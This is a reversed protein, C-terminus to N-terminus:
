DILKKQIEDFSYLKGNQDDIGPCYEKLDEWAKKTEVNCRWWPFKECQSPRFDYIECKKNKLFCCDFNHFNETLSIKGRVNRTYKKLFASKPMKLFNCIKQIEKDTIWVYGPVGTCCKACGDICKFYLGDKYWSM